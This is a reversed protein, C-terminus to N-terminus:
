KFFSHMCGAVVSKSFSFSWNCVNRLLFLNSTGLFKLLHSLLPPRWLLPPFTSASKKNEDSSVWKLGYQSSNKLCHGSPSKQDLCIFIYTIKGLNGWKGWSKGWQTLNWLNKSFPCLINRYVGFSLLNIVSSFEMPWFDIKGSRGGKGGFKGRSSFKSFESGICTSHQPFNWIFSKQRLLQDFFSFDGLFAYKGRKGVFKGM